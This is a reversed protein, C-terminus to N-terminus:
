SSSTQYEEYRFEIPLKPALKSIERSRIDKQELKMKQINEQAIQRLNTPFHDTHTETSPIDRIVRSLRVWEPADTLCFTILEELETQTYPVWEGREYNQMLEASPILACPYIKLEDPMFDP